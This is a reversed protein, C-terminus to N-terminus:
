EETVTYTIKMTKDATKVVPAALNNISALYPSFIALSTNNSGIKYYFLETDPVKRINGTGRLVHMKDNKDILCLNTFIYGGFPGRAETLAYGSITNEFSKIDAVNKLSCKYVVNDDSVPIYVYDDRYAVTSGASYRTAKKTVQFEYNETSMMTLDEKSIDVFTLKINNANAERTWTTFRIKDSMMIANKEVDGSIGVPLTIEGDFLLRSKSYDSLLKVGLAPKSYKKIKLANGSHSVSYVGHLDAYSTRDIGSTYGIYAFFESNAEGNEENHGLGNEGGERSTLCVCQVTGNAQDTAFDWVLRFGNDLLCTEAANMSGHRENVGSYVSTGAHGICEVDGPPLIVEPDEKINGNFILVGGLANKYVPLFNNPLIGYLPNGFLYKLANTIMNKEVYKEKKGSHVDTLEIETVGKVM